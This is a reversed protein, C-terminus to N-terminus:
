LKDILENKKYNRSAKIGMYNDWNSACVGDLPRKVTLLDETLLDGRKINKKAVISKRAAIKNGKESKTIRKESSGLIIEMERIKKIVRTARM